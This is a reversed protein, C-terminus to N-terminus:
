TPPSSQDSLHLKGYVDVFVAVVDLSQALTGLVSRVLGDTWWCRERCEYVEESQSVDFRLDFKRNISDISLRM